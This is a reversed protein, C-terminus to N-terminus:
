GTGYFRIAGTQQDITVQLPGSSVKLENKQTTIALPLKQPSAIVALSNIKVSRGAPQKIIRVIQPSYFQVEVDMSPVSTKIGNETKQYTQSWSTTHISAMLVLLAIIGKRNM